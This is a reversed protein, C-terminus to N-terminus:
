QWAVNVVRHAIGAQHFFALWRRQHTQLKDGPGKVEILEAGGASPFYILDPLGKRRARLDGWLYDFIARWDKVSINEIALTLLAEDVAPWFVLSHNIGNKQELRQLLCPLPLHGDPGASFAWAETKALVDPRRKLFDQSYLDHPQSQFPHSFAGAVPAFFVPWYVLAFVTLFLHNEVYFCRGSASLKKAVAWEPLRAGWEGPEKPCRWHETPPQYVTPKPWYALPLKKAVRYAFAHAFEFEDDSAPSETMARCLIIAQEPLGRSVLIRAQRERAPLEGTKAFLRQAQSLAGLRELQRAIDCLLQGCKRELRADQPEGTPTPVQEALAVLAEIDDGATNQWRDALEVVAMHDSVQAWDAFLRTQRNIAYPEFQSLALDRLVFESLDQRANGFYLLKLWAFLPQARLEVIPEQALELAQDPSLETLATQLASDMETRKWGLDAQLGPVLGATIKALWEKKTFLPLWEDAAVPPQLAVMQEAALAEVATALEGLEPYNLKALRFYNGKRSLLRVLLAQANPSLRQFRHIFQGYPKPLIESYQQQVGELLELFNALYYLQPLPSVVQM